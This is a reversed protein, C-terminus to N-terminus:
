DRTWTESDCIVGGLVCGEVSAHQDDLLKIEVDYDKGDNSNYARGRWDQGDGTVNTFITLGILPRARKSDDSNNVDTKPQGNADSPEALWVITGCLAKACPAFRIKADAHQTMWVGNVGNKPQAAVPAALIALGLTANRCINKTINAIRTVAEQDCGNRCVSITRKQRWITARNFALPHAALSQM